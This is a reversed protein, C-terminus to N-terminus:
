AGAGVRKLTDHTLAMAQQTEEIAVALHRNREDIVQSNQALLTIQQEHRKGADALESALNLVSSLADALGDADTGAAELAGVRGNLQDIKEAIAELLPLGAEVRELRALFTDPLANTETHHETKHFERIGRRKAAEVLALGKGVKRGTSTM